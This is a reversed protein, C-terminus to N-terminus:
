PKFVLGMIILFLVGIISGSFLWMRTSLMKLDERIAKSSDIIGSYRLACIDEHSDIKHKAEYAVNLAENATKQVDTLESM